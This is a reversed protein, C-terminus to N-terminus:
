LNGRGRTATLDRLQVKKTMPDFDQFFGTATGLPAPDVGLDRRVPLFLVGTMGPPAIRPIMSVLTRTEPRGEGASLSANIRSVM